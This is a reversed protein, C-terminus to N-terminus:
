LDAIFQHDLGGAADGGGNDIALRVFTHPTEFPRRVMGRTGYLAVAPVVTFTGKSTPV